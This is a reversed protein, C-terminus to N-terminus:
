PVDHAYLFRWDRWKRGFRAYGYMKAVLTNSDTDQKFEAAIRDVWILMQKMMEYDVMGWDKTSSMDTVIRDKFRGQLFNANNNVSGVQQKTNIIEYAMEELDDGHILMDPHSDFKNRKADKFKKMLLRTAAVAVPSMATTGKNSQTGADAPSYPHDTASLAKADMDTPATSFMENWISAGEKMRYRRLGRAMEAPRPTMVNYEDDDYLQREIKIGSTHATFNITTDYGQDQSQYAITGAFPSWDGTPGISSFKMYSKNEHDTRMWFIDKLNDPVERLEDHFIKKFGPTLCDPFAESSHPIPM